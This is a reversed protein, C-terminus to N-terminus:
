RGMVNKKSKAEFNIPSIAGAQSFPVAKSPEIGYFYCIFAALNVGSTVCVITDEDTYTNVIDDIAEMNRKLLNEWGEGHKSENFRDDDIIPANHYINIIEATHKCRLYPSTIVATINEDKYREAMNRADQEGLKTIDELQRLEPDNHNPGIEREAHHMYIIRM